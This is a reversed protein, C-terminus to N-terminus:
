LNENVASARSHYDSLRTWSKAVRHVTAWWAGRDVPDELCSEPTPLWERSWPIKEVLHRVRTEQVTPLSKVM